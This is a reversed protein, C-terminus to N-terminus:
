YLTYAYQPLNAGKQIIEGGRIYVTSGFAESGIVKLKEGSLLVVISTKGDSSEVTAVQTIEKSVSKQFKTWINAM